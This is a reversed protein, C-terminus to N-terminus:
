VMKAVDAQTVIRLIESGDTKRAHVKGGKTWVYKWGVERKKASAAGMLKKNQRTLHENIYVANAPGSFGLTETTMRTKKAKMLLANRKSQQLFRLIKNKETPKLTPVRHCIDIDKEDVTEGLVEGVKKLINNADAKKKEAMGVLPIPPCM